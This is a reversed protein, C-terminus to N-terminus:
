IMRLCCNNANRRRKKTNGRHQWWECHVSWARASVHGTRCWSSLPHRHPLLRLFFEAAPNSFITTAWCASYRLMLYKDVAHSLKPGRTPVSRWHEFCDLWFASSPFAVLLFTGLSRPSIEQTDCSCYHRLPCQELHELAIEFIYVFHQLLNPPRTSLLYVFITSLPRTLSLPFNNPSLAVYDWPFPQEFNQMSPKPRPEVFEISVRLCHFM